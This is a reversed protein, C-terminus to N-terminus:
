WAKSGSNPALIPVVPMGPVATHLVLCHRRFLLCLNSPPPPPSFLQRTDRCQTLISNCLCDIDDTSGDTCYKQQVRPEAVFPLTKRLLFINIHHAHSRAIKCDLETLRVWFEIDCRENHGLCHGDACRKTGQRRIYRHLGVASDAVATLRCAVAM